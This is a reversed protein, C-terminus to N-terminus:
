KRVIDKLFDSVRELGQELVDLPNAFGIRVYGEMEFASGPTLMVGTAEILSTCFETSSMDVDFKLLCVTAAKPKVYSVLPEQQIWADLTALNTRTIAHNRALIRDKAELAVSALHDDIMGVSITNYDRHICVARILDVPGAIWGLRLGALSWTKSMSGTSIGREYLDAVSATFGSGEQNTGRYVEDCLLYAGCSRAIAVVEKLFAEDMLSGTPNNPNNVAILKTAPSALTRLEDLDPLFRNEERLTLLHVDAGHSEPISYHQQYTPLVAIVRDGPEILTEYVLANAGIAGHTVLINKPTQHDYLAAINARLRDSGEIAGYTLKMPRLEDMISDQKGTLTLLQDVTLSEVCTEALNYRAEHEYRDMWREVLFDKIKM